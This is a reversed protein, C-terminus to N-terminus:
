PLRAGLVLKTQADMVVFTCTDGVSAAEDSAKVHRQKRGAYCWLEDVQIGTNRPLNTGRMEFNLFEAGAERSRVMLRMITDRHIGTMREASGISNGEVLTGIVSEKQEHKLKNM